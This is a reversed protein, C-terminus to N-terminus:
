RRRSSSRNSADANPGRRLEEATLGDADRASLPAGAAVLTNFVADHRGLAAAHLPTRGKADVKYVSAGLRLLEAVADAQGAAAAHHLPTRGSGDLADVDVGARVLADISRLGAVHLPQLGAQNAQNLRAGKSLLLQLVGDDLGARAAAHLLTDGAGDRQNVDLGLSLFFELRGRSPTQAARHLLPVGGPSGVSAPEAGHEVMWRLAEVSARPAAEYLMSNMAPRGAARAAEALSGDRLTAMNLLGQQQFLEVLEVRQPLAERQRQRGQTCWAVFLVILVLPLFRVLKAFM